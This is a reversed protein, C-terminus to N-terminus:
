GAATEARRAQIWAVYRAPPLFALFLATGGVTSGTAFCAAGAPHTFPTMGNAHLLLSVLTNLAAFGGSLSFLLFRNTVIPDSLGLAERKKAKAFQTIGEVFMWTFTITLPVRIWLVVDRVVQAAPMDGPSTSLTRLIETMIALECCAVAVPVAVAWRRGPRFTRWVFSSLCAAAVAICLLGAILPASRVDDIGGRGLRSAALLPIGIMLSAFGAGLLTEPLRRNRIGLRLLNFGIVGSAAVFILNGLIVLLATTNM